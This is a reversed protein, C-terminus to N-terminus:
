VRVGILCIDDVQELDGKWKNFTQELLEKQIHMPKNSISTLLNQLQKYMFKKGKPGGFQDAFGDTFTYIMDDSQLEFEHQSFPKFDKDHKGVPMRDAFLSIFTNNRIVWVPNNAAAFVMKNNKFDFSVLTCDMGDKGGEASGDNSLHEIIKKRTANLIDAPQTLKDAIIAENLCSINLISMISGPVGHGTSDATALIFKKDSSQGISAGWYFDGSVVDKPKFFLFYDKLNDDLLKKSALLSYQIRQAYNISDLIEKQKEEIIYKQLLTEKEKVEIIAKQKKTIKFRNYLFLSFIIVILLVACVSIIISNQQFKDAEAIQKQEKLQMEHEKDNIAKKKDFDYQTQQKITAKQIEINDLSDRMEIFLEYNQLALKYNSVKKYSRYLLKASNQINKPLGIQRAIEISKEGYEIAKKFNKQKRYIIGIDNLSYAAGQMDGIKIQLDYSKIFNYLALEYDGEVEYIGGINNYSMAIGKLNGISEEMKLSRTYCDLAKTYDEKTDYIVGINNLSTAMGRRDNIEERIKLAKNYYEFAKELDNQECYLFGINNLTTAMGIKDNIKEQINLSKMHLELAKKVDGLNLKVYGMADLYKACSKVDNIRISLELSKKYNQLANNFNGVEEHYFGTYFISTALSRLYFTKLPSANDINLLNHECIKKLEENIKNYLVYETEGEIAKILIRCKTTDDKTQQILFKLSDSNFSNSYLDRSIFLSFLNLCIFNIISLRM